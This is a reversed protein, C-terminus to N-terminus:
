DGKENEAGMKRLKEELNAIINKVRDVAESVPMHLRISETGYGTPIDRTSICNMDGMHKLAGKYRRIKDNIEIAEHCQKITM